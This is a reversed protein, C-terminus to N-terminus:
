SVIPRLVLSTHVLLDVGKFDRSMLSMESKEVDDLHVVDGTWACRHQGSDSVTKGTALTVHDADCALLRSRMHLSVEPPFWCGDCRACCCVPVPASPDDVDVTFCAYCRCGALYRRTVSATSWVPDVDDDDALSTTWGTDSVSTQEAPSQSTVCCRFMRCLREAACMSAETDASVLCRDNNM